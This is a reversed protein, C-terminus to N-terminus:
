ATIEEFVANYNTGHLLNRLPSNKLQVKSNYIEDFPMRDFITHCDNIIVAEVLVSTLATM